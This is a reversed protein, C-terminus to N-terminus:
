HGLVSNHCQVYLTNVNGGGDVNGFFDSNAFIGSRHHISWGFYCEKLKANGIVDGISVDWSWDLYNLFHSASPNKGEINEREVIPIKEAYSIGEAIGVRTKVVDSWPFGSFYAKFGLVYENFDSQADKELRRAYGATIYTELPLGMFEDAIKKGLFVSALGTNREEPDFLEKFQVMSNFDVKTTRGAAVRWYWEGTTLDSLIDGSTYPDNKYDNFEYRYNFFAEYKSSETVIPSDVKTSDLGTYQINVGLFHHNTWEYSMDLGYSLEVSSDTEYAPRGDRAEDENVGFYYNTLSQDEYTVGIWPRFRYNGRSYIKGWRIQADWGNSQGSIDSGVDLTFQGLRTRSTLAIRGDVGDDRDIGDLLDSDEENFGGFRYSAYGSLLWDDNSIFHYGARTGDIFYKEGNFTILPVFDVETDEGIYPFTGVRVGAGLSWTGDGPKLHLQSVERAAFITSSTFLIIFLFSFKLTQFFKM